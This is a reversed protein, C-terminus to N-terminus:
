RLRTKPAANSDMAPTPDGCLRVNVRDGPHMGNKTSYITLELSDPAATTGPVAVTYVVYHGAFVVELVRANGNPHPALELAEPRLFLADQGNATTDDFGLDPLRAAPVTNVPGLFHAAQLSRPRHYINSVTDYEVLQGGHGTNLLIGMRDSMAFAEELDHTVSITTTGFARQTKRIFKATDMKLNRDLNAFPEDLLLISPNVVMARALAVRQKQGASLEAPYHELKDALQFFGLIDTVRQKIETKPRKRARLGFAVNAFTTMSPFLLYDQFVLIVPEAKSPPREFEVTGADPRVQGALITLLTTKGVGSPGVLSVMEGANVSFSVDSLVPKGEFAKSIGRVRFHM